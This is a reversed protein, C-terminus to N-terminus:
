LPRCVVFACKPREGKDCQEKMPQGVLESVFAQAALCLEPHDRVAGDLPCAFGRIEIRDDQGGLEAL